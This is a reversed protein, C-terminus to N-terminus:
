KKFKFVVRRIMKQRVPKGDKQAPDWMYSTAEILRIAEEDCGFGLGKIVKVDSISGDRNVICEVYVKGRIGMMKAKKPYDINSKVWEKFKAKGGEKFEASEDVAATFVESTDTQDQAILISVMALFVTFLTTKKM